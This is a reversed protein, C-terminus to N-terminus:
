EDGAQQALASSPILMFSLAACAVFGKISM